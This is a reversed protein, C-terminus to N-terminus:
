CILAAGNSQAWARVFPSLAAAKSFGETGCPHAERQLEGREAQRLTDLYAGALVGQAAEFILQVM